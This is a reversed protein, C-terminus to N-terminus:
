PRLVAPEEEDLCVFFAYHRAVVSSKEFIRVTTDKHRKELKAGRASALNDNDHDHDSLGKLIM